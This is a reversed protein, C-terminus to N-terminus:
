LLDALGSGILQVSLLLLVLDLARKFGRDSMRELLMRGIMTGIFGSLIMALIFGAWPAFAFGLFGFALIKALHQLTMFM